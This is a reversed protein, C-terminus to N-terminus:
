HCFWKKPSWGDPRVSTYFQCLGDSRMPPNINTHNIANQGLITYWKTIVELENQYSEPKGYVTLLLYRNVVFAGLDAVQILPSIHSKSFFPIDIVEELRPPKNKARPPCRYGTYGDSFSLDLDFIASLNKDHGGQEDFVVLTKGKNNKKGAKDRQLALVVNVAGAEYPYKLLNAYRCGKAKRDFFKSSDIPCVIFKCTRAVAWSLVQDIFEVRREPKVGQWDGRGRYINASKVETIPINEDELIKLMGNHERNTKFLKTVDTVVGFLVEVPQQPNLKEGCHGSEDIYCAYM